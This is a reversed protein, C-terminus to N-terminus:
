LGVNRVVEVAVARKQAERQAVVIAEQVSAVQCGCREKLLASLSGKLVCTLDYPKM